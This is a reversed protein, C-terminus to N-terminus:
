KGNPAEPAKIDLATMLQQEQEATLKAKPLPKFDPQNPKKAELLIEVMTLLDRVDTPGYLSAGRVRLMSQGYLNIAAAFLFLNDGEEATNVRRIIDSITSPQQDAVKNNM